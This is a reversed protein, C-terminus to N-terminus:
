PNPIGQTGADARVHARVASGPAEESRNGPSPRAWVPPPGPLPPASRAVGRVHVLKAHTPVDADVVPTALAADAVPAASPADVRAPASADPLAAALREEPPPSADASPVNSPSVTPFLVESSHGLGVALAVLVALSALAAPVVLNWRPPATVAPPAPPTSRLADDGFEASWSMRVAPSAFPLLARGLDRVTPFRDAPDLSLARAVARELAEPVAPVLARLPEFRGAAVRTLVALLSDSYFPLAGTLSQYLIVGLAWQDSRADVDRSREIQEPSMFYPTGLIAHSRTLSPGREGEATRAIGFDLLKPHLLGPRPVTLFLNEPKLDRHVVGAEHVMAVASVVPVMVDAVVGAGLAGERAIRAALTEGELYEMALFPTGEHVGVDFVDVIHPHALKAATQAERVFRTMTEIPLGGKARLVKLAVRKGIPRRVAEYVVGFAGQGVRRVIEYAGFTAGPALAEDEKEADAEETM